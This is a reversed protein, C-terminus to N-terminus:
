VARDPAEAPKAAVRQAGELLRVSLAADRQHGRGRRMGHQRLEGRNGSPAQLDVRPKARVLPAEALRLAEPQGLAGVYAADLRHQRLAPDGEGAEVLAGM